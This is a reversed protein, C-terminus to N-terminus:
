TALEVASATDILTPFATPFGQAKAIFSTELGVSTSFLVSFIGPDVAFACHSIAFFNSVSLIPLATTYTQGCKEIGGALKEEADRHTRLHWAKSSVM